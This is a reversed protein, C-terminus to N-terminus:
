AVPSEDHAGTRHCLIGFLSYSRVKSAEFPKCAFDRDARNIFGPERFDLTTVVNERTQIVTRESSVIAYWRQADLMLDRPSGTLGASQANSRGMLM